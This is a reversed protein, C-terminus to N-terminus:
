GAQLPAEAACTGVAGAMMRLRQDVFGAAELARRCAAPPLIEEATAQFLALWRDFHIPQPRMGAHASMVCGRYRDTSRLVRSWFDEVVRLHGEWDPIAAAFIPGLLPDANAREYFGRVLARIMDESVAEGTIAAAAQRGVM